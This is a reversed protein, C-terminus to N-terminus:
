VHARGIEEEAAKETELKKQAEIAEHAERQATEIRMKENQVEARQIQDNVMFGTAIVGVVFLILLFKWKKRQM